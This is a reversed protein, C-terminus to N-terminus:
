FFTLQEFFEDKEIKTDKILYFNQIKNALDVSDGNRFITGCKGNLLIENIGGYSQSSIVPLGFNIAEVVSNPFGEFYSSNIYLNSINFSLPIISKIEIGYFFINM